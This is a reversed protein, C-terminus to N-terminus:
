RLVVSTGRCGLAGMTRVVVAVDVRLAVPMALELARAARGRVLHCVRGKALNGLRM